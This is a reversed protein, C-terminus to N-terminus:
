PKFKITNIIQKATVAYADGNKLATYTVLYLRTKYFCLRQTIRVSVVDGSM